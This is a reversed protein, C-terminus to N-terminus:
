ILTNNKYTLLNLEMAELEIKEQINKSLVKKLDDFDIERKLCIEVACDIYTLSPSRMKLKEIERSIEKSKDAFMDNKSKPNLVLGQFEEILPEKVFNLLTSNTFTTTKM